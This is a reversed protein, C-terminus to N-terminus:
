EGLSSGIWAAPAVPMGHVDRESEQPERIMGGFLLAGSVVALITLWIAKEPMKLLWAGVAFMSSYILTM